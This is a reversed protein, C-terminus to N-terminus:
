EPFLDFLQNIADRDEKSLNSDSEFVDNMVDKVKQKTAEKDGLIGEDSEGSVDGDESESDEKASGNVESETKADEEQWGEPKSGAEKLSEEKAEKEISKIVDTVEGISCGSLLSAVSLSLCLIMCVLMKRYIVKM